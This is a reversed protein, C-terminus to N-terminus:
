GKGGAGKGEGGSVFRYGRGPVTLILQPESPNTEIKERLRRVVQALSDDRVGRMFVQDESWVARIIDDKECVENPHAQLHQLLANEKATLNSTDITTQPAPRGAFLMPNNTLGSKEIEAETPQDAWFERVRARVAESDNLAPQTLATGTAYAECSARLLAPYGGSFQILKHAAEDNWSVGIREAYRQVNWEADSQSLPGLWLTHAHFLEALESADSLTHRTSIVYTMKFKYTDRLVRLNNFLDVPLNTQTSADSTRPTLLRDFRDILLTLKQTQGLAQGIAVELAEFADIDATAPEAGLARQCLRYFAQNLSALDLLNGSGLSNLNLRNCDVLVLRHHSLMPATRHAMFGLLNSKGAGSLGVVAASEGVRVAQLIRQVDHQRYTTPYEDWSTTASDNVWHNYFRQSSFM